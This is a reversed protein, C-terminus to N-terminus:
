SKACSKELFNISNSIQIAEKIIDDDFNNNKLLELAIYQNSYGHKLKYNFIIENKDNRDIEFKYNKIKGNTKKELESLKTYHTTVIFMSKEYTSMKNLIAFAGSFGEVYNTSSFLEDMIVFSLGKSEKIKKIYEKSRLMETEFLSASGTTDPIHLYTDILKFPTIIFKKSSSLGITQSLLLNIAISKIFTSKGAANPGTIIINNNIKINNVIPNTDINPNWINIAKIFPTKHKNKNRYCTLSYNKNYLINNSNIMDIIGIYKMLNIINIKNNNFIYYRSLIAGKNNFLSPQEKFINIDFLNKINDTDKNILNNDPNNDPNNNPNYYNLIDIESCLKSIKYTEQIFCNVSIMKKHILNIIKNITNSLIITSYINQIYLLVWITSTMYGLIKIKIPDKIFYTFFNNNFFNTFTKFILSLFHKITLQKKIVDPLKRRFFLFLIIPIIMTNIPTLITIIPSIFIKYINNLSLLLENKNLFGDIKSIGTYNLFIINDFVDIHSKNTNDWFWVIDNQITKIKNLSTEILKIKEDGLQIYQKQINQRKKLLKTNFIPTELTSKLYNNGLETITNNIKKYISNNTENNNDLFFELDTFVRDNIKVIQKNKFDLDLLTTFIDKYKVTNTQILILRDELTLEEEKKDYINIEKKKIFNMLYEM